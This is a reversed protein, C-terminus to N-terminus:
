GDCMMEIISYIRKMILSADALVWLVIFSVYVMCQKDKKDCKLKHILKSSFNKQTLNDM